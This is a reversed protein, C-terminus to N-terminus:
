IFTMTMPATSIPLVPTQAPWSAKAACLRQTRGPSPVPGATAQAPPPV